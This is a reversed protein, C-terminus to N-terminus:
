RRREEARHGSRARNTLKGLSRLGIKVGNSFGIGEVPLGIFNRTVDGDGDADHHGVVGWVGPPVERVVVVVEGPHAPVVVRYSPDDSLWNAAGFVLARVQGAASSVGHVHVEVDTAHAAAATTFYPIKDYLAVARISRSDEVAAAGETTNFVLGVHGDQDAAPNAMLEHALTYAFSRLTGERFRGNLTEFRDYLFLTAIGIALVFLTVTAVALRMFLTSRM